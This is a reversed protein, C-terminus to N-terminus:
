KTPASAPSTAQAGSAAVIQRPGVQGDKLPPLGHDLKEKLAIAQRICDEGRFAGGDFGLQLLVSLFRRETEVLICPKAM